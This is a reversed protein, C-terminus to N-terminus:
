GKQAKVEETTLGTMQALKEVSWDKTAADSLLQNLFFLREEKQGEERGKELGEERGKKLGKELGEELGEEKAASLDSIYDLHAKERMRAIERAEPDTSIEELAKRAKDIASMHSEGKGKVEKVGPNYLFQCWDVLALKDTNDAELGLKNFIKAIEIFQIQIMDAIVAQNEDERMRFIYHFADKPAQAFVTDGMLFISICKRLKGYGSGKPLQSTFLKSSYYYARHTLHRHSNMQMEINILEGGELEIAIDLMIGKDDLHDKPIEPNLLTLNKIPHSPRIIASILDMLIDENGKKAFLMKFVADNKPDLLTQTM